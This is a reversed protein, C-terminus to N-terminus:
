RAIVPRAHRPAGCDQPLCSATRAPPPQFPPPQFGPPPQFAPAPTAPVPQGHFAEANGVMGMGLTLALLAAAIMKNMDDTM